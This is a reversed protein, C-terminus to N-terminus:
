PQHWRGRPSRAVRSLTPPVDDIGLLQNISGVGQTALKWWQFFSQCLPQVDFLRAEPTFQVGSPLYPNAHLHASTRVSRAHQLVHTLQPASIVGVHHTLEAMGASAFAWRAASWPWTQHFEHMFVGLRVTQPSAHEPPPARLAWPHLLWVDQGAVAQAWRQLDAPTLPNIACEPPPNKHLQAPATGDKLRGAAVAHPTKAIHELAEYTTDIVSGLSHWEPPAYRAVNDANFLYPKHSGTAAVWQWSLHNSALDGDLLHGYLWDAAVRWHVKRLHVLYSALWMRAHNHLHGSAYLTRVAQDIVPLGTCAQLVDAPLEPSYAADPLPGAHLSEFIGTGRHRWVDQFFERWGLEFVLKDQVSLRERAQVAQVVEPLTIVGHTISPSLQTAAGTLSNRSRAYASPSVGALRQHAAALTPTLNPSNM